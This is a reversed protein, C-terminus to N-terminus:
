GTLLKNFELVNGDPDRIFIVRRRGRYVEPGGTLRFNSLGARATRPEPDTQHGLHSVRRVLAIEQLHLTMAEKSQVLVRSACGRAPIKRDLCACATDVAIRRSFRIPKTYTTSIKFQDKAEAQAPRGPCDVRRATAYWSNRRWSLIAPPRRAM